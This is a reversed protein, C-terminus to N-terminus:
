VLRYQSNFLSLKISDGLYAIMMLSKFLLVLAIRVNIRLPCMEVIM